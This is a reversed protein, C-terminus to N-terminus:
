ASTKASWESPLVRAGALSHRAPKWSLLSWHRERGRPLPFVVPENPALRRGDAALEVQVIVRHLPQLAAAGRETLSQQRQHTPVRRRAQGLVRSALHHSAVEEAAGLALLVVAHLELLNRLDRERGVVELRDPLRVDQHEDQREGDLLDAGLVRLQEVGLLVGPVRVVRERGLLGVLRLPMEHALRRDLARRVLRPVVLLREQRLEVLRGRGANQDVRDDSVEERRAFAQELPDVGAARIQARTAVPDEDAVEVSVTEADAAAPAVVAVVVETDRRGPLGVSGRVKPDQLEQGGQGEAAEAASPEQKKTGTNSFKKSYQAYRALAPAAM